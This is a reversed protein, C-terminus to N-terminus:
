SCPTTYNFVICRIVRNTYNIKETFDIATKRARYITNCQKEAIYYDRPAYHSINRYPFGKKFM